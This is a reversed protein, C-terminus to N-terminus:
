YVEKLYCEECYVIEPRDPAFTTNIIKSCKMCKRIWFKRPNRQHFRDLHRQDPSRRPLPLIHNRYFRLEQTIIRFPKKTVECIIAWDLIDDPVDRIDDPLQLADVTKSVASPSPEYDDWTAGKSLAEEKTLPYYLQATTKNYGFLAIRMPFLEGWEGTTRMHEIIKPVLAEYEEKTYQKNLVCYSKHHMNVCGFCNSSHEMYWCYFLDSCSMNAGFTFLLHFSNEGSIACEYSAQVNTGYQNFDYLNKGGLVVQYCFKADEV